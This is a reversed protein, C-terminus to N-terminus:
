FDDPVYGSNNIGNLLTTILETGFEGVAKIEEINIKDPSAARSKKM